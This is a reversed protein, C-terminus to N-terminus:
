VQSRRRRRPLFRCLVDEERDSPHEPHRHREVVEERLEDGGVDEGLHGVEVEKEDRRQLGACRVTAGSGARRGEESGRGVGRGGRGGGARM